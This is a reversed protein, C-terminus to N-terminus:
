FIRLNERSEELERQLHGAPIEPDVLGSFYIKLLLELRLNTPTVQEALWEQLTRRGKESIRYVRRVPRESQSVMQMRVLGKQEPRKLIPYIQGYSESWFFGISREFWRRM